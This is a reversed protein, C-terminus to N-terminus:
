SITNNTPLRSSDHQIKPGPPSATRHTATFHDNVVEIKAIVPDVASQRASLLVRAGQAAVKILSRRVIAM